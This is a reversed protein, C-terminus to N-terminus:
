TSLEVWVPTHDSPREWKRPEKDIGAESLQAKLADSLLVLDIRLGRNRRFALERYDWWSYLKPADNRLRLSDSLGLDLLEALAQREPKSCLIQDQWLLPDHVDQDSPTINFDGMLVLKPWAQLQGRLWDRLQGYWRLKYHYKDSDVAQGNVCYVNVIRIGDVTAAIVRRQRPDDLAGGTDVDLLPVRSLLAVGNYTKQGAVVCHYGLDAMATHPFQSDELKLEQLGLVDPGFGTLWRQVHPLRAKLSNVNWSAIRM